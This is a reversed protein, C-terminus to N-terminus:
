RGFVRQFLTPKVFNVFAIAPTEDHRYGVLERALAVPIDFIFDAGGEEEQQKTLRDCIATFEAPLKGQADLHADGEQADHTVSWLQVGDKWSSARSVMVHEEVFCAIVECRQSLRRVEDNTFEHRGHIVLYWGSPLAGGCYPTECHERGVNKLGFEQLVAEATKGRVAFWSLSAGM